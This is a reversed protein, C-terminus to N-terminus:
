GIVESERADVFRLIKVNLSFFFCKCAEHSDVLLTKVLLEPLRCFPAQRVYFGAKIARKYDTVECSYLNDDIRRLAARM